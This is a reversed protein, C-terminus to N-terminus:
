WGSFVSSVFDGVKKGGENIETTVDKMIETFNKGESAGDAATLGIIAILNPISTPTFYDSPRLPTGGFGGTVKELDDDSIGGSKKLSGLVAAVLEKAEVKYGAKKAVAMVAKVEDDKNASKALAKQCRGSFSQRQSSEKFFRSSPEYM